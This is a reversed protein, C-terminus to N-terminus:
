RYNKAAKKNGGAQQRKKGEQAILFINIILLKLNHETSPVPKAKILTYVRIVTFASVRILM